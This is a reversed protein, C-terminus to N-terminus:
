MPEARNVLQFPVGWPDRMMAIIDGNELHDPGSVSVAGTERLRSMEASVDQIQFAIHFFLPDMKRYDPVPIRKNRYIEVVTKGSSDALFVAGAKPDGRRIVKMGLIDRYWEVTKEPDEVQWAIHEIKM